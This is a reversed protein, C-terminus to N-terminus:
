EKPFKINDPYAETPQELNNEDIFKGILEAPESSDHTAGLIINKDRTTLWAMLGYVAESASMESLYKLRM